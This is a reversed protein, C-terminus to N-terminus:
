VIQDTFAVVSSTDFNRVELESLATADPVVSVQWGNALLMLASTFGRSRAVMLSIRMSPALEDERKALL